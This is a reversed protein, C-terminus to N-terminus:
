RQVAGRITPMCRSFPLLSVASWKSMDALPEKTPGKTRLMKSRWSRLRPQPCPTASHPSQPPWRHGRRHRSCCRLDHNPSPLHRSPGQRVMPVCLRPRACWKTHDCRTESRRAPVDWSCEGCSPLGIKCILYIYLYLDSRCLLQTTTARATQNTRGGISASLDAGIAITAWHKKTKLSGVTAKARHQVGSHTTDSLKFYTLRFVFFM